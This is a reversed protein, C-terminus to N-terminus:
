WTNGLLIPDLVNTLIYATM